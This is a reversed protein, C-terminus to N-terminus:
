PLRKLNNTAWSNGADIKLIEEYFSRATLYDGRNHAKFAKASLEDV